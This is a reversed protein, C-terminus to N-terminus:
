KSSVPALWLSARSQAVHGRQVEQPFDAEIRAFWSALAMWGAV